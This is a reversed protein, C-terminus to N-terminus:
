WKNKDTIPQLLRLTLSFPFLYEEVQLIKVLQAVMTLRPHPPIPIRARKLPTHSQRALELRAMRM